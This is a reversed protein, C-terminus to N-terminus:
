PLTDAVHWWQSQKPGPFLNKKAPKAFLVKDINMPTAM